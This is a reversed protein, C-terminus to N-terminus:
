PMPKRVSPLGSSANVITAPMPESVNSAPACGVVNRKTNPDCRPKQLLARQRRLEPLLALPVLAGVALGMVAGVLVDTLYHRDSVIRLLGVTGALVLARRAGLTPPAVRMARAFGASTFAMATHLSYFSASGRLRLFTSARERAREFPRPRGVSGKIVHGLALSVGLSLAHALSARRALDPRDKLLPAVLADVLATDLLTVTVLIDSATAALERDRHESLRLEDRVGEDLAILASQLARRIM